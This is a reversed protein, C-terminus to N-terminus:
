FNGQFSDDFTSTLTAGCKAWDSQIFLVLCLRIKFLYKRRFQLM